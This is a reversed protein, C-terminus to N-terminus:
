QPSEPANQKFYLTFYNHIAPRYNGAKRGTQKLFIESVKERGLIEILRKCDDFKGYNLIGEVVAELSLVTPDEVSWFLEKRQELFKKLEENM